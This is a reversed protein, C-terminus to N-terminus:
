VHLCYKFNYSGMTVFNSYISQTPAKGVPETICSQGSGLHAMVVYHCSCLISILLIYSTSFKYNQSTICSAYFTTTGQAKPSRLQGTLCTQGSGMQVMGECNIFISSSASPLITKIQIQFFLKKIKGPTMRQPSPDPEEIGIGLTAMKKQKRSICLKELYEAKKEDTLRAYWGKGSTQPKESKDSIIAEKKQQRAMRQKQLYENKREDSMRAYRGPRSPPKAGVPENITANAVIDTSTNTIDKFPSRWVRTQSSNEM